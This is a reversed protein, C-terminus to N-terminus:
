ILVVFVTEYVVTALLVVSEFAPFIYAVVHITALEKSHMSVFM